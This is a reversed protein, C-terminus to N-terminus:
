MLYSLSSLSSIGTANVIQLGNKHGLKAALL